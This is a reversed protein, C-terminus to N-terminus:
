YVVHGATLIHNPTIAIGSGEFNDLVVSGIPSNVIGIQTDVAVVAPFPFETFEDDSPQIIQRQDPPFVSM